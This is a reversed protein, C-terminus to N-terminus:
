HRWMSLQWMLAGVDVVGVDDGGRQGVKIGGGQCVWRSV